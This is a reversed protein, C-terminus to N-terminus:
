DSKNGSSFSERKNEQTQPKIYEIKIILTPSVENTSWPEKEGCDGENQHAMSRSITLTRRKNYRSTRFLVIKTGRCFARQDSTRSNFQKKVAM